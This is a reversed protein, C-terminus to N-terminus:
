SSASRRSNKSKQAVVEKGASSTWWSALLAPAPQMGPPLEAATLAAAEAELQANERRVQSKLGGLTFTPRLTLFREASQRVLEPRNTQRYAIVM